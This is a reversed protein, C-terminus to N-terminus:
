ISNCEFALQLFKNGIELLMEKNNALNNITINTVIETNEDEYLEINLQHNNIKTINIKTKTNM